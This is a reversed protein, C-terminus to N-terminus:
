CLCTDDGIPVIAQTNKFRADHSGVRVPFLKQYQAILDTADIHQRGKVNRNVRRAVADAITPSRM